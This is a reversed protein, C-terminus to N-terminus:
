KKKPKEAKPLGDFKGAKGANSRNRRGQILTRPNPNVGSFHASAIRLADTPSGAEIYGKELLAYILEAFDADNATWSILSLGTNRAEIAKETQPDESDDAAPVDPKESAPNYYKDHIKNDKLWASIGEAKVVLCGKPSDPIYSVPHFYFFDPRTEEDPTFQPFLGYKDAEAFVANFIVMYRARASKEGEDYDPRKYSEYSEFDVMNQNFFSTVGYETRLESCIEGFTKRTSEDFYFIREIVTMLSMAIDQHKEDPYKTTIEEVLIHSNNMWELMDGLTMPRNMFEEVKKTEEYLGKYMEQIKENERWEEGKVVRGLAIRSAASEITIWPNDFTKQESETIIDEVTKYAM